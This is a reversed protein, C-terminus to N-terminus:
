MSFHDRFLPISNKYFFLTYDKQMHMTYCRLIKDSNSYTDSLTQMIMM